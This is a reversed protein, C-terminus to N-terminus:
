YDLIRQLDRRASRMDLRTGRTGNLGDGRYSTRARRRGGSGFAASSHPYMGDDHDYDNYTGPTATNYGHGNRREPVSWAARPPSSPRPSRYREHDDGYGDDHFSTKTRMPLTLDPEAMTRPTSVEVLPAPPLGPTHPNDSLEHGIPTGAAQEASQIWACFQPFTISGKRHTDIVDFDSPSAERLRIYPAWTKGADRVKSAFAHWEARSVRHEVEIRIFEVGDASRGKYGGGTGDPRPGGVDIVYAFCEYLTAYVGLYLLLLRFQSRTVADVTGMKGSRVASRFRAEEFARAYSRYYRRYLAIASRGYARTLTSMIGSCVDSLTLHPRGHVAFSAFLEERRKKHTADSPDICAFPRHFSALPTPAKPHILPARTLSWTTHYALVDRAYRQAAEETSAAAAERAAEREMASEAERRARRAEGRADFMEHHAEEAAATAEDAEALAEEAAGRAAFAAENAEMALRRADEAERRAEEEARLARSKEEEAAARSAAAAEERERSKEASQRAEEEARRASAEAAKADAEARREVAAQMEAAKKDERTIALEEQVEYLKSALGAIEATARRLASKEQEAESRIRAVELQAQEAEKRASEGERRWRSAESLASQRAAMAEAMAESDRDSRATVKRDVEAEARRTEARAKATEAEAERLGRDLREEAELKGRRAADEQLKAQEAKREAAAQAEVARATAAQAQVVASEARTVADFDARARAADQRRSEELQQVAVSADKRAEAEATRARRVEEAREEEVRASEKALAKASQEGERSKTAREEAQEREHRLRAAERLAEDVRGEAAALVQAHAAEISSTRLLLEAVSQKADLEAAQAASLEVLADERGRKAEAVAAADEAAKAQERRKADVAERRASEADARAEEADLKAAEVAHTARMNARRAEEEQLQTRFAAEQAAEAAARAEDRAAIAAALAHAEHALRAEGENKAGEADRKLKDIELRAAELQRRTEDLERQCEFLLAADSEARADAQAKAQALAGELESRKANAEASAEALTKEFESQKAEAEAKAEALASEFTSTAETAAQLRAELKAAAERATRSADDLSEGSLDTMSERTMLEKPTPKPLKINALAKSLESYDVFGSGDKDILKFLGDCVEKDVDWSLSLLGRHFEQPSLKSDSNKDWDDAVFLACGTDADACAHRRLM